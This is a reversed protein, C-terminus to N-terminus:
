NSSASLQTEKRETLIVSFSILSIFIDMSTLARKRSFGILLIFIFLKIDGGDIDM